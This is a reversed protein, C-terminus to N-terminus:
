RQLLALAAAYGDPAALTWASIQPAACDFHVALRGDPQPLVSLAPLHTAIGVGWAKLVAEKGSWIAYASGPHRQGHAHEAMSFVGPVSDFLQGHNTREIDVGVPGHTSLALLAHDGAHSVNFWLPTGDALEPKGQASYALAVQLPACGLQLALLRRLAQRTLAHRWQDEPRRYRLCRAQEDNSLDALPLVGARARAPAIDLRWLATHVSGCAAPLHLLATLTDAPASLLAPLLANLVDAGSPPLATIIGTKHQM